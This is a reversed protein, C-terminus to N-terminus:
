SFLRDYFIERGLHNLADIKRREFFDNVDGREFYWICDFLISLKYVDFLHRKEIPNLPRFNMYEAVVSRAEQFDLINEGKKFQSWTDWDFSPIFPNMLTILDYTLFTYNADDFDILAAIKGDKFLINSFHFDCHCIGKPLSRSLNLKLLEDNFWDLKERANATNITRATKQALERCLEINYNWRYKLNHPRYNRTLNQLEAAKQILQNKQASNPNEVHQGEIFEFLVFPKEHTIGVYRGKKNKFPAPCPFDRDKLYKILNCEFAVSEKSRNEYYRFVFKGNTTQIFFNTQVTGSTIPHSSIFEGLRYNSLIEIFEKEPFTTKVAM